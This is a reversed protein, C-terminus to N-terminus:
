APLRSTAPAREFHLRILTGGGEPTEVNFSDALTAMTPLGIGLGPSQPRPRMGTAGWDRVVVVLREPEACTVLRVDGSADDAYAHLVANTVAESVALRVDGPRRVGHREAFEGAAWRMTTVTRPEAPLRLDLRVSKAAESAVCYRRPGLLGPEGQTESGLVLLEGAAHARALWDAAESLPAGAEM